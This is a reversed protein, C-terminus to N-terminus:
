IFSLRQSRLYTGNGKYRVAAPRFALDEFEVEARVWAFELGRVGALGNRAARPNRLGLAADRDRDLPEILRPELDAWADPTFKLHVTWVNTQGFLAARNTVAATARRRQFAAVANTPFPPAEEPEPERGWGGREALRARREERLYHRISFVAWGISAVAFLAAAATVLRRTREETPTPTM